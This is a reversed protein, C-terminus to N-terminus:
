VRPPKRLPSDPKQFERDMAKNALWVALISAAAGSAFSLWISVFALPFVALALLLLVLQHQTM